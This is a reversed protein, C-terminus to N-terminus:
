QYPNGEAAPQSRLEGHVDPRRMYQPETGLDVEEGAEVRSIKSLALRTMVDATPHVAFREGGLLDAYLDANACAIVAPERRLEAALIAPALVRPSDLPAVDDGGMPRLRQAYVEKRRADIVSVIEMAGRDAAALALIELSSLGYLPVEWARALVRATVLGARLGTFAAPGTGAVIADPASIGAQALLREIVPSLQEAHHRGDSSYEEALTTVAGFEASAIGVAIGNSTDICLYNM